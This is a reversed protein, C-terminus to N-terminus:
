RGTGSRGSRSERVTTPTERRLSQVYRPCWLANCDLTWGDSKPMQILKHAALPVGKLAPDTALIEQAYLVRREPVTM